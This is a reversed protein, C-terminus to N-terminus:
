GSKKNENEKAKRKSATVFTQIITVLSGGSVLSVGIANATSAPNLYVIILGSIIGIIAIIFGFITGRSSDRAALKLTESEMDRRHKSQEEAMNFIREAAGHYVQEYKALIEPHPLPGSFESYVSQALLYSEQRQEENTTNESASAIEKESKTLEEM